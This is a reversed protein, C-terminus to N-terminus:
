EGRADVLSAYSRRRGGRAVGKVALGEPAALRAPGGAARRAHPRATPGLRRRGGGGVAGAAADRDGGSRRGFVAAFGFGNGCRQGKQACTGRNRNRNGRRPRPRRPRRPRRLGGCHSAKGPGAAVGHGARAPLLGSPQAPPQPRLRRRARCPAARAHLAPPPPPERGCVRGPPVLPHSPPLQASKLEACGGGGGGVLVGGAFLPGVMRDVLAVCLAEVNVQPRWRRQWWAGAWAGARGSSSAPGSNEVPHRRRATASCAAAAAM